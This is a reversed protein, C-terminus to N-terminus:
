TNWEMADLMVAECRSPASSNNYLIFVVFGQFCIITTIIIKAVNQCGLIPFQAITNQCSSHLFANSLVIYARSRNPLKSRMLVVRVPFVTGLLTQQWRARQIHFLEQGPFCAEALM